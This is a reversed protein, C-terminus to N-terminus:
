SLARIRFDENSCMLLPQRSLRQRQLVSVWADESRAEMQWTSRERGKLWANGLCREEAKWKMVEAFRCRPSSAPSRRPWAPTSPQCKPAAAEAGALGHALLALHLSGPWGAPLAPPSRLNEGVLLLSAGLATYLPFCWINLKKGTFCCSGHLVLRSPARSPACAAQYM